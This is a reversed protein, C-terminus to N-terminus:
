NYKKINNSITVDTKAIAKERLERLNTLERDVRYSNFETESPFELVHVEEGTGNDNRVTEFATIMRGQYKEMISCAQTEFLELAEFNKVHLTVLIIM